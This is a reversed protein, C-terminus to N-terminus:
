SVLRITGDASASALLEGTPSFEVAYVSGAHGTLKRVAAGTSGDWLYIVKGGWFGGTASAILKGDPSFAVAQVAHQHADIKLLEEKTNIDWLRLTKDASVSALLMGDPSFSVDKVHDEHGKLIAVTNGNDTDWIRVTKDASASALLGGNPSFSISTVGSEHGALTRVPRRTALDWLRVSKDTSASALLNGDPSFALSTIDALHGELVAITEWTSTDWLTIAGGFAGTAVTQGDPSYAVSDAWFDRRQLPRAPEDTALDFMQITGDSSGSVLLDGTSAFAVDTAKGQHAQLSHDRTFNVMDWLTVSGDAEASALTIGDPSFALGYAAHDRFDGFMYGLLGWGGHRLTRLSEGTSPSALVLKGDDLACAIVDGKPSYALDTVSSLQKVTSLLDGTLSDWIRLTSDSSGTAIRRGNPSVAVSSVHDTHGRLTHLTNGTSVDWVRVTHDGSASALLSGDASFALASVREEHGALIRLTEGTTPHWLRVTGDISASALIRANPGFAVASVSTDHGRLTRSVEGTTLDWLVIAHDQSASALLNGDASVAVASVPGGFSPNPPVWRKKFARTLDLEAIRELTAPTMALHNRLPQRQAQLAHLLVRQYDHTQWKTDPRDLIGLVREEHVRALNRSAILLREDALQAQETTRNRQAEAEAAARQAQATATRAEQWQHWAFGALGLMALALVGFGLSWQRARRRGARETAAQREALEAKEALLRERERVAARRERQDTCARQRSDRLFAMAQDYDGPYRRAWAPSPRERRLWLRAQKLDADRYPGAKGDAALAATETLRRYTRAAAAEEDVWRHLTRWQRILSEHSIDIIPDLASDFNACRNGDTGSDIPGDNDNDNDYDYDLQGFPPHAESIRGVAAGPPIADPESLVLFNRGGRRFADIVALVRAPMVGAIAAADSLRVPRRIRRNGPDLETLAQFLRRAIPVNAPDGRTVEALAEEADRDLAAHIGHVAEYHDLDIPGGPPGGTATPSAAWHDWCRLLLHQLIPLDDRTDPRENLLRDVLRPAIAGGALRVPGTIAERRQARTLRPVLFQGRNIAEPLGAFADCDGIFDSRMTLVCYVPLERQRTLALLLAVFAEAEARAAPGAGGADTGLGFRFLEEFQDVVLLWNAAAPDASGTRLLALAAEPGDDRLQDALACVAAPDGPADTLALLAAALHALPADGPKLTAIRWDARDEVLFGAELAPLLGARVMSSKGSGSSGIVALLRSGDLLGLLARIQADRGFYFLSDAREFPRLGVFPNQRTAATM